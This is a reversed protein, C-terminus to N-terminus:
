VPKLGLERAKMDIAHLEAATYDRPRNRLHATLSDELDTLYPQRALRRIDEFSIDNAHAWMEMFTISYKKHLVESYGDQHAARCASVFGRLVSQPEFIENFARSLKCPTEQRDDWVPISYKFPTHKLPATGDMYRLLRETSCVTGGHFEHLQEFYDGCTSEKQPKDGCADRPLIIKSGLGRKVAGFLTAKVCDTIFIGTFILHDFTDTEIGSAFLPNSFADSHHKLFIPDGPQFREILSSRFALPDRPNDRVVRLLDTTGEPAIAVWCVVDGRARAADLIRATQEVAGDMYKQPTKHEFYGNQWDIVLVINKGPKNQM